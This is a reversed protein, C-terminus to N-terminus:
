NYFYLLNKHVLKTKKTKLDRLLANPGEIKVIEYPGQKVSELKHNDFKKLLVKDGVRFHYHNTMKADIAKKRLLKNKNLLNRAREHALQLKYRMEKSYDEVNYLPGTEDSKLDFPLEVRKGYVLEYPTYGTSICPTTNYAFEYFRVYEDWDSLEDNVFHRLYENLNRHNRELSGITQPHYPTSHVHRMGLLNAVAKFTENLYETGMDSKVKSVSGFRLVFDEVFARAVTKAEKNEIPVLTIYKTLEDLITLIYRNGKASRILPGVTDVCIVQFSSDPTDTLVMPETHGKGHKNFRCKACSSVYGEIKKRLNKIDYKESMKDYLRSIGVHGGLLSEHYQKILQDIQEENEVRIRSPLVRILLQSLTENGVKTFQELNTYQFIEDNREIKLEHFNNKFNEKELFQFLKVLTTSLVKEHQTYVNLTVVQNEPVRSHNSNFDITLDSKNCGTYILIKLERVKESEKRNLTTFIKLNDHEIPVQDHCTSNEKKRSMNRTMVACIQLEKLDKSDIRIRSLADACVNNQGKIYQVEFDYTELDLRMRTLKSTPNKMGFLYILPRHDTIIIFKRGILYPKFYEIAWHIAYCEKLSPHKHKETKKFSRSAFCIPLDKGDKLQSLVAGCAIDSADTTLRFTQTFDPYQLIPPQILKTKLTEFAIQCDDSWKFVSDKKLLQNLPYAIRAFNPVFRRYYNCFAVFRRVEDVNQPVPYKEVVEYKAPDPRIGQDSIQHGLYTVVTQLFQCKAPNLKLNYRRLAEFVRVLNRNHHKLSCGFVVLDDVYLFCSEPTLGSMAITVMRQFSNPSIKLGMPLRKFQYHGNGTSFATFQRSSPEIEIQYFGSKLDLVTFFRARGLQDLIEDIRPLPFTDSIVKKNIQRFDVVLRWGNIDIANKKPVLLLPSNYPSFSHEIIDQRLMDNVQKEIESKHAQPIRYNRTYVPRDDSLHIKQDYFNNTSLNDNSLSFIDEFNQCIETVSAKAFKPVSSFDLESMLQKVRNKHMAENLGKIENGIENNPFPRVDFKRLPLHRPRFCGIKRDVIDTNIMKVYAVDQVLSNSIFVGPEVEKALILTPEQFRVDLRRIVESRAPIIFSDEVSDYLTVEFRDHGSNLTLLYTSYDISAKMSKLFDRGLIGDVELPFGKPLVQFYHYVQLGGEFTLRTKTRGLTKVAGPTVGKIVCRESVVVEQADDIKREKFVSISAGSDVMLYCERDYCMRVKVKVFDSGSLCDLAFVDLTEFGEVSCGRPQDTSPM